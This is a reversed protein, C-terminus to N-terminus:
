HIERVLRFGVDRDASGDSARTSTVSCQAPGSRFSGGRLALASGHTVWEWVGGTVGVLGWPNAKGTAPGLEPAHVLRGLASTAEGCADSDGDWSAGGRAALLWEDDTPLRYVHGSVTTLWDAYRRAFAVPISRAPDNANQGRNVACTRTARCFQDLNAITVETRMMAFPKRGNPIVVMAPGYSGVAFTDFCERATGALGKRACADRPAGAVTVPPTARLKKV